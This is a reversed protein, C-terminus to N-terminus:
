LTPISHEDAEEEKVIIDALLSYLTEMDITNTSDVIINVM